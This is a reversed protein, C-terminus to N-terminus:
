AVGFVNNEGQKRYFWRTDPAFGDKEGGKWDIPELFYDGYSMKKVKYLKNKYRITLNEGWWEKLDEATIKM